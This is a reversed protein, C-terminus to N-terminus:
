GSEIKQCIWHLNTVSQWPKQCQCTQSKVYFRVEASEFSSLAM